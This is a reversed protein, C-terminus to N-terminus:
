TIESTSIKAGLKKIIEATILTQGAFVRNPDNYDKDTKRMTKEKEVDILGCLEACSNYWKATILDKSSVKCSNAASYRDTGDRWSLHKGCHTCWAEVSKATLGTSAQITEGQKISMFNNDVSSFQGPRTYITLVNSKKSLDAGIFRESVPETDWPDDVTARKYTYETYYGLVKAYISNASGAKLTTPNYTVSKGEKYKTQAYEGNLYFTWTYKTEKNSNGYEYKTLKDDSYKTTPTTVRDCSCSIKAKNIGVNTNSPSDLTVSEIGTAM